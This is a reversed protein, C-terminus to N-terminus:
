INAAAAASRQGLHHQRQVACDLRRGPQRSNLLHIQQCLKLGCAGGLLCVFPFLFSSKIDVLAQYLTTAPVLHSAHPGAARGRRKPGEVRCSAPHSKSCKWTSHIQARVHGRACVGDGVQQLLVRMQAIEERLTMLESQMQANSSTLAEAKGELEQM